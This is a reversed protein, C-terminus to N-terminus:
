KRKKRDRTKNEHAVGGKVLREYVEELSFPMVKTGFLASMFNVDGSWRPVIHIHLHDPIGAGAAHGTNMGINFAQPASVKQIMGQIKVVTDMLDARELATMKTLDGVHRLPLVLSHGGNFPYINLVAFSYETRFLIYHKKDKNQKLINCFVCGRSRGKGIKKVYTGRWPAWLVDM